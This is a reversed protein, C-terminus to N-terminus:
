NFVISKCLKFHFLCTVPVIYPICIYIHHQETYVSVWGNKITLNSLILEHIDNQVFFVRHGPCNSGTCGPNGGGDIAPRKGDMSIIGIIELRGSVQIEQSPKVDNSLTFIGSTASGDWEGILSRASESEHKREVKQGREYVGSLGRIFFNNSTTREEKVQKVDDNKFNNEAWKYDEGCGPYNLHFWTKWDEARDCLKGDQSLRRMVDKQGACIEDKVEFANCEMVTLTIIILYM